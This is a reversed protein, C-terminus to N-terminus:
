VMNERQDQELKLRMSDVHMLRSRYSDIHEKVNLSARFTLTPHKNSSKYLPSSYHKSNKAEPFNL